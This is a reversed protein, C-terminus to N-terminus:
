SCTGVRRAEARYAFPTADSIGQTDIRALRSSEVRVSTQGFGNAPCTYHVTAGDAGDAIVLRSCPANRHQVQFLMAPDIVCLSRPMTGAEDLNRLQWLGPQLRGIAALRHGGQAAAPAALVMLAGLAMAARSLLGNLM